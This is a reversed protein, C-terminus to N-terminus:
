QASRYLFGDTQTLDVLLQKINHGSKEFALQATQKNCADASDLTRGYAFQMWNTAMCNQTESSSALLKILEVGNTATGSIGPV